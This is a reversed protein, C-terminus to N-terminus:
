NRLSIVTLGEFEYSVTSSQQSSDLGTGMLQSLVPASVTAPLEVCLELVFCMLHRSAEENPLQRLVPIIGWYTGVLFIRASQAVFCAKM